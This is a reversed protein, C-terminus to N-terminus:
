RGCGFSPSPLIKLKHTLGRTGVRPLYGGALTPVGRGLYTGGGALTPVGGTPVGGRGLYTGGALTPVWGWGRRPYTVGGGGFLLHM